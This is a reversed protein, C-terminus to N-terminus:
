ETRFGAAGTGGVARGGALFREADLDAYLAIATAV